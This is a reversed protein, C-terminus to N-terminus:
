GVGKEVGNHAAVFGFGAILDVDQRGAVYRCLIDEVM